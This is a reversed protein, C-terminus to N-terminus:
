IRGNMQDAVCLYKRNSGGTGVNRMMTSSGAGSGAMPDLAALPTLGNPFKFKSKVADDIHGENPPQGVLLRVRGDSADIVRICHNESLLCACRAHSFDRCRVTNRVTILFM